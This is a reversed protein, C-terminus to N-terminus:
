WDNAQWSLLLSSALIADSNQKSFAGLADQLGSLAIGSHQFALNKTEQSQSAWALHTASFGLIAHMLFPHSAALGIFRCITLYLVALKLCILDLAVLRPMYEIWLTLKSSKSAIMDNSIQSVHYLLRLDDRSYSSWHPRPYVHLEPFPFQSTRQWTDVIQEIEPTWMLDPQQPQTAIEEISPATPSDMYDCRVQHKTCNRSRSDDTNAADDVQEPKGPPSRSNPLWRVM